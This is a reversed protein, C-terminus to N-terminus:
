KAARPLAHAWTSVDVIAARAVLCTSPYPEVERLEGTKLAHAWRGSDAVWSADKLKIWHEDIAEVEGLYHYTVTRIFLKQGAEIM